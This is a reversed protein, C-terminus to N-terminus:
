GTRTRSATSCPPLMQSSRSSALSLAPPSSQSPSKLRSSQYSSYPRERSEWVNTKCNSVDLKDDLEEGCLFRVKTCSDVSVCQRHRLVIFAGGSHPQHSHVDDASTQFHPSRLASRVKRGPNRTLSTLPPNPMRASRLSEHLPKMHPRSNLFSTM